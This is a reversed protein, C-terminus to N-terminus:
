PSCAASPRPVVPLSGPRMERICDKPDPLSGRRRESGRASGVYGLAALREKLDQPVARGAEPEADEEPALADLRHLMADATSRRTDYLNTTEFPDKALDYLEPRPAEIVKLWGSRLARLASWGFRLPYLSESYAELDLDRTRGDLLPVLSVGDGRPPEIGALALLTPMLDVSRVLSEVRRPALGPVRVILPVHLVSEYVLIGHDREDHEGLSEGHDGIVAIITSDLLKRHELTEILRGIQADAFAIEAVYEDPYRSRYPEPADYPRHPDYLHAWLFFRSSEVQDLWGIAEAIVSDARRQHETGEVGHYIDFGQALGRREDLVTSAVFAATRFGHPRLIEPLTTISDAVAPDANDRIHHKPPFLGTLISTHAPFTLPAASSAQDFVVGERALRELAPMAVDMLGYPTLRDARTTDLTILVIGRPRAVGCGLVVAGVLVASAIALARQTPASM